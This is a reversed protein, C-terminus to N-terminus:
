YSEQSNTQMEVGQSELIKVLAAHSMDYGLYFEPFYLDFESQFASNCPTGYGFIDHTEKRREMDAFMLGRQMAPHVLTFALISLDVPQDPRKLIVHTESLHKLGKSTPNLGWLEICFGALELCQVCSAIFAGREMISEPPIGCSVSLNVGLKLIKTGKGDTIDQEFRQWCEPEGDVYRSIDISHGETDYVPNHRIIKNGILQVIPASFRNIREIGRHWGNEALAFAEPLSNVGHFRANMNDTEINSNKAYRPTKKLWEVQAHLSEHLYVPGANEPTFITSM